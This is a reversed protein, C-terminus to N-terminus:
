PGRATRDAARRLVRPRHRAAPRHGVATARRDHRRRSSVLMSALSSTASATGRMSTAACCVCRRRRLPRTTARRRACFGRQMQAPCRRCRAVAALRRNAAEITDIPSRSREPALVCSSERRTGSAVVVSPVPVFNTLAAASEPTDCDVWLVSGTSSLDSRRSAQRARPLVGVYVDTRPAHHAIAAAVDRLRDVGYFARAMGSATRVRLEVHMGAPCAAFLADLYHDCSPNGGVTVTVDLPTQTHPDRMSTWRSSSDPPRPARGRRGRAGLTEVRRRDILYGAGNKAMTSWCGVLKAGGPTTWWRERLYAPYEDLSARGRM